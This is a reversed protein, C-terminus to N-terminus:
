TFLQNKKYLKGEFIEYKQLLKNKLKVKKENEADLVTRSRSWYLRSLIVEPKFRFSWRFSITLLYLMDEMGYCKNPINKRSNATMENLNYM